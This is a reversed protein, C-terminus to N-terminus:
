VSRRRARAAAVCALGILLAAEASGRLPARTTMSCGANPQPGAATQASYAKAYSQLFPLVTDVRIDRGYVKCESDGSSTIGVVYEKGDITALAPGGSDGNCTQAPTAHFRFDDDTFSVIKSDGTRKRLDNEATASPVGFGVLRINMNKFSADFAELRVPLPAVPAKAALGVMAVDNVLTDEDFDPHAKTDSVAIFTGKKSSPKSGFFVQDPPTPKVCHAATLIVNKAVLVGTCYVKGQLMLGVVAQDDDDDDGNTIAQQTTRTSEEDSGPDASMPATCGTCALVAMSAVVVVSRMRQVLCDFFM